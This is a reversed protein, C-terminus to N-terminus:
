QVVTIALFFFKSLAAIQTFDTSNNVSSLSFLFVTKSCFAIYKKINKLISYRKRCHYLMVLYMLSDCEM